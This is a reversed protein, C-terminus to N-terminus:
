ACCTLTHSSGSRTVPEQQPLRVHFTTGTGVNSQVAITGGHAEVLTHVIALGLGEGGRVQQRSEDVQYFRDFIHPLADPPIGPGTDSVILLADTSESQCALTVCGGPPTYKLANEVLNFFVQLLRDEDAMVPVAEPACVHLQLGNTEALPQLQEGVDRALQALDLPECHLQLGADARALMLLDGVLRSMRVNQSLVTELVARYDDASREESLAVEIQGRIATLPTRLEHSADATFQRQRHWAQELRDIMTDFTAALRGLEDNRLPLGLRRSLDLTSIQRAMRTLHDIPTLARGALFAGGWSALALTAPVTTLLILLLRRLTLVAEDLEEAVQLVGVVENDRRVPTSLVRFRQEGIDVTDFHSKGENAYGVGDPVPVNSGIRMSNDFVSLGTLTYLRVFRDTGKSADATDRLQLKGESISISRDFLLALNQLADDEADLLEKSLAIYVAASFLILVGALLGVYWLTLRWRLSLDSLKM